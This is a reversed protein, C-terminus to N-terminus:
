KAESKMSCEFHYSGSGIEVSRSNGHVDSKLPHPLTVTARTNVPIQVDLKFLGNEIKWSSVVWGYPTNLEARASNLGGGPKPQIMMKKYGPADPDSQIGAVNRYMWDGIAGYAYHNYSNMDPTQFSGNPKIGDWREWITTAGMKVPYLWSPYSEQMLLDYAVDEYGYSSLVHCLYPTGLFGTTLHNGYSKIDAVLRDAASTRFAEPLLNFQLALVYATQTSSVLRGNGTMYEKVFALKVDNLLGTYQSVDKSKGLVQAANILIQVSHAYFAQAILYKDTVAARGDNDDDPRYFLWDGFHFGTNWLNNISKSRMYGVWKKMSEYQDELLRQDGYAVYMDWPVITSVDAWGASAGDTGGLVNPIVHPVLGDAQQDASLDKLWKSFFGAVDMNYAATKAFAQADGTWGLREDRQPCDTPVDVFNGKQGWQINHQLQNLLPDSTSFRGTEEMDSYLAVATLQEPKLEGPYGEIKVYRFGQFTFHPELVQTTNGKLIYTNQAKATRLNLTYFNGDKDLIEAHSLTIRTGAPGNAKLMVWGVMNQGFDAVTEGKPTKFIKLASFQEHKKVPASSMGILEETGKKLVSVNQWSSDETYVPESWGTKELRADYCEGDYIDASMIPGYASKWDENTNITEKTGDTYAIELQMLLARTDGYFSHQKGFGIRGKYWGDGLTVGIANVGNILSATVDYVQYQLRKRYSTWGPSLYSDGLRKGNIHAEYLGKATIYMTAFRIKKKVTFAKRFLPSRASTDKGYVAIWSATWESPKIGMQWFKVESWASTHGHNDKVRVQWFYRKKSQLQAGSYPVLISQETKLQNSWVLEKTLNLKETGVRIEYATQFTNKDASKIKWSFRPTATEVSLPNDEHEVRLEAVSIQQAFSASGMTLFLVLILNKM